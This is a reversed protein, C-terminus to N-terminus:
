QKVIKYQQQTSNSFLELVYIGPKGSSIDIRNNGAEINGLLILKGMLDYVKFKCEELKETKFYEVTIKGDTPNPRVQFATENEKKFKLIM